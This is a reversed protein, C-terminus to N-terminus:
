CSIYTGKDKKGKAKKLSWTNSGNKCQIPFQSWFLDFLCM